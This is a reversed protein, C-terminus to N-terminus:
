HRGRASEMSSRALRECIRQQMAKLNGLVVEYHADSTTLRGRSWYQLNLGEWSRVTPRRRSDFDVQVVAEPHPFDFWDWPEYDNIRDLFHSAGWFASPKATSPVVSDLLAEFYAKFPRVSCTSEILEVIGGGGYRNHTELLEVSDNSLMVEMHVPSTVVGLASVVRQAYERVKPGWRATHRSPMLFAIDRFSPSGTLLKDTMAFVALEGDVVLGEVSIEVGSIFSEVIVEGRGTSAVVDLDYQRLLHDIDSEHEIIRVGISGTFSTPKVIVPLSVDSLFDKLGSVPVKRFWVGTLGARDLLQRTRYKDMAALEAHYPTGRLGLAERVQAALPVTLETISVVADFSRGALKSLISPLDLTPVVIPECPLGFGAQDLASRTDLVILRADISAADEAAMRLEPLSWPVGITLLSRM